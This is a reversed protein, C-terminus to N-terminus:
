IGSYLIEDGSHSSENNPNITVNKKFDLIFGNKDIEFGYNLLQQYIGKTLKGGEQREVFLYDENKKIKGTTTKYFFREDINRINSDFTEDCKKCPKSTISWKDKTMRDGYIEVFTDVAYKVEYYPYIPKM